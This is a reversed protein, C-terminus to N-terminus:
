DNLTQVYGSMCNEYASWLTFNEGVMVGSERNIFKYAQAGNITANQRKFTMGHESSVRRIEQMAEAYTISETM